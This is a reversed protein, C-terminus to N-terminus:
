VCCSFTRLAMHTITTNAHTASILRWSRLFPRDGTSRAFQAGHHLTLSGNPPSGLCNTSKQFDQVIVGQSSCSIRESGGIGSNNTLKCLGAVHHITTEAPSGKCGHGLFRSAVFCNPMGPKCKASATDAPRLSLVCSLRRFSSDAVNTRM